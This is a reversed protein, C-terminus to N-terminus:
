DIIHYGGDDYLTEDHVFFPTAMGVDISILSRAPAKAKDLLADLEPIGSAARIM